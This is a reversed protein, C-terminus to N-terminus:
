HIAGLDRCRLLITNSDRHRFTLFSQDCTYMTGTYHGISVPHHKEKNYASGCVQSSLVHVNTVRELPFYKSEAQKLNLCDKGNHEAGSHFRWRLTMFNYPDFGTPVSQSLKEEAMEKMAGFRYWPMKFCSTDESYVSNIWKM